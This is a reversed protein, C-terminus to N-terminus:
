PFLNKNKEIEEQVWDMEDFLKLINDKTRYTGYKNMDKRKVIPFTELIYDFEERSIGYLRGFIADLECKLQFREEENWTFPEGEYGYENALPKLDNCTYTLKFAKEGVYM